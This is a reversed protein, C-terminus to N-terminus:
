VNFHEAIGAREAWKKNFKGDIRLSWAACQPHGESAHINHTNFVCARSTSHHTEGTAHDKIVLRKPIVGTLWIFPDMTNKKSLDNEPYDCHFATKQGPENIWFIVRGYETFCNQADIWDYLFKFQDDFQHVIANSRLHKEHYKAPYGKNGRLIFGNGLTVAGSLKAYHLAEVRTLEPMESLIRDRENYVSLTSQDYLTNQSTGSPSFHAHNKALGFAIKNNIEDFAKMDLYNELNCFLQNNILHM